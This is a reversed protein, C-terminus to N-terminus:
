VPVQEDIMMAHFPQLPQRLRSFFFLVQAAVLTLRLFTGYATDICLEQFSSTVGVFDDELSSM